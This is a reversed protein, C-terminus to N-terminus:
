IDIEASKGFFTDDSNRQSANKNMEGIKFGKTEMREIVKAMNNEKIFWDFNCGKWKPNNGKLSNVYFLDKSIMLFYQEWEYITPLINSRANIHKKRTETIRINPKEFIENWKNELEKYFGREYPYSSENKKISTKEKLNEFNFLKQMNNNNINNITNNIINNHKPKGFGGKPKGFGGESYRLGGETKRIGYFKEKNVKIVRKQERNVEIYKKNELEKLIESV